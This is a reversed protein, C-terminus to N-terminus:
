CLFIKKIIILFQIIILFLVLNKNSIEIIENLDESCQINNFSNDVKYKKEYLNIFKIIDDIVSVKKLKM